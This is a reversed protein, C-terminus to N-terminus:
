EDTDTTAPSAVSAAYRSWGGGADRTWRTATGPHLHLLDALVAAPVETALQLLTARRAPLARLGITQLREGPRSPTLPWGPLHGPFLWPSSNDVDRHRPPQPPHRAPGHASRRPSQSPSACSGFRVSTHDHHRHIQDTTM